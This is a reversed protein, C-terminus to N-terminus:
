LGLHTCEVRVGYRAPQEVLPEPSLALAEAKGPNRFTGWVM